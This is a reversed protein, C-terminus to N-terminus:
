NSSRVLTQFSDQSLWLGKATKNVNTSVFCLHKRFYCSSYKAKFDLSTLVNNYFLPRTLNFLVEKRNSQQWDISHIM